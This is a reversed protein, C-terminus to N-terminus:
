FRGFYPTIRVSISVGSLNIENVPPVPTNYVTSVSGAAFDVGIVHDFDMEYLNTAFGTELRLGTTQAHFNEFTMNHSMIGAGLIIADSGKTPFYYNFVVGWSNRNLDFNTDVSNFSMSSKKKPAWGYEYLLRIRSHVTPVLTLSFNYFTTRNLTYDSVTHYNFPFFANMLANARDFGYYNLYNKIYKNVEEPNNGQWGIQFSITAVLKKSNTSETKSYIRRTSSDYKIKKPHDFVIQGSALIGIGWLPM